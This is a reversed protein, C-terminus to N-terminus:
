MYKKNTFHFRTGKGNPLREFIFVVDPNVGKFSLTEFDVIAAGLQQIQFLFSMVDRNGPWTKPFFKGSRFKWTYPENEGPWRITEREVREWKGPKKKVHAIPMEFLVGCHFAM